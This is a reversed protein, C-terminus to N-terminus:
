PHGKPHGSPAALRFGLTLCRVLMFGQNKSQFNDDTWQNEHLFYSDRTCSVVTKSISFAPRHHASRYKKLFVLSVAVIEKSFHLFRAKSAILCRLTLCRALMLGHNKSHFHDDLRQNEYLFQNDFMCKKLFVLPEVVNEMAFSSSVLDMFKVTVLRPRYKQLCVM